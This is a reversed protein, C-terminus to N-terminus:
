AQSALRARIVLEMVELDFPKAVFVDCGAELAAEEDQQRAMATLAIIPIMATAPDGKLRQAVAFGDLVPMMLDLIILDPREREVAHLAQQGDDALVTRAGIFDEVVTQLIAQNNPEDEVILVLPPRLTAGNILLGSHVTTDRDGQGALQRARAEWEPGRGDRGDAPPALISGSIPEQQM